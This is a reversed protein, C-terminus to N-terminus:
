PIYREGGIVTLKSLMRAEGGTKSSALRVFAWLKLDKPLDPEMDRGGGPGMGGRGRGMGGGAPGGMPPTDVGGPRGASEPRPGIKRDIKGTEFGIGVVGGPSAGVAFPVAESRVLPIKLEYVLFGSSPEVSVEIGGAAELDLRRPAGKESPIIELVSAAAGPGPSTESPEQGGEVAPEEPRRGTGQRARERVPFRIGFSKNRGGAPDFWITLGGGMIQKRLAENGTLLCLYLNAGDNQFGLSVEGDGITYTLGAWDDSHGDIVIEHGPPRSEISFTSFSRCGGSTFALTGIMALLPVAKRPNMGNM